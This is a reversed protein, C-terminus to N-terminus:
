LRPQLGRDVLCEVGTHRTATGNIVLDIYYSQPVAVRHTSPPMENVTAQDAVAIFAYSRAKQLDYVSYVEQISRGVMVPPSGAPIGGRRTTTHFSYLLYQPM